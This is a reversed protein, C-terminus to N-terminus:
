VVEVYEFRRDKGGRDWIDQREFTVLRAGLSGKPNEWVKCLDLRGVESRDARSTWPRKMFPPRCPIEMTDVYGDSWVFRAIM